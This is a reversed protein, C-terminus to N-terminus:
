ASAQLIKTSAQDIKTSAETIKTAEKRAHKEVLLPVFDRVTAQSFGAHIHSVIESIQDPHLHPYEDILRRQAAAIMTSESAVAM